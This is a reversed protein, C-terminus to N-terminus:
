LWRRFASWGSYSVNEAGSKLFAVLLLLVSIGGVVILRKYKTLQAKISLSNVVIEKRLVLGSVDSCEM